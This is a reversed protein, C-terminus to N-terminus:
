SVQDTTTAPGFAGAERLVDVAAPLHAFAAAVDDPEAVRHANDRLYQRVADEFQQPGARRRADLLASGGATYIGAVYAASPREHEAWATMPQGVRDEARPPVPTRSLDEGDVLAQAYTAFSEDLWPHAAQNNGVLGYFWMHAVEHTVLWGDEALDLDGFQIAGAAELGDTQDPVVTVWLDSYPFPGLHATLDRIAAEIAELWRDVSSRTGTRPTGLHVQVGDATRHVVDLDGVTVAVDRVAPDSFRHVTSGATAGEETSEVAGTGLVAYESPAVVTLRALDFTESTAMEGVVDVAPDTAWGREREWALLPFATAFWAADGTSAVGVREDTGEGLTVTFTLEARVREGAPVCELLPVEVLTGPRGEPAGAAAVVPASRTGDVRVDVVELSNGFAATAPKNPWARFVLECVDRDPTFAVTERGDVSRLDPAVVFTLDVVPRSPDPAPWADTSEATSACGTLVLLAALPGGLRRTM